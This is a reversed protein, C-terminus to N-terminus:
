RERRAWRRGPDGAERRRRSALRTRVAAFAVVVGTGLAPVIAGGDRVGVGLGRVAEGASCLGAQETGLLLSPVVLALPGAWALAAGALGGHPGAATEPRTGPALM